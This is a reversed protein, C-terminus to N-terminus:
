KYYGYEYSYYYGTDRPTSKLDFGNLVAGIINANAAELNKKALQASEITANAHSVVFIVGDALASLVAADTVVSAPPTDMIIYDYQESLSDLMKAMRASGLLEAPNPPIVGATIVDINLDSFHVIVDAPTAEGSLVNTLGSARRTIRLYKHMVPKRLDCDIILVKKGNEALSISLNIAVNSKGENPISSTIVLRRYNNSAAMFNINTRLTKYAEVYQFPASKSIIQLKRNLPQDKRKKKGLAPLKFAM